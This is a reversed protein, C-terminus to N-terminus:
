TGQLIGTRQGTDFTVKCLPDQVDIPISNSGWVPWWNEIGEPDVFVQLKNCHPTVKLQTATTFTPWMAGLHLTSLWSDDDDDDDDNLTPCPGVWLVEMQRERDELWEPRSTGIYATIDDRWRRKQWGRKRKGTRPQWELEELRTKLAGETKENSKALKTSQTEWKEEEGASKPLSAASCWM